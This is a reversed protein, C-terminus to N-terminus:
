GLKDSLVVFTKSGKTVLYKHSVPNEATTKVSVFHNLNIVSSSSRVAVAHIVGRDPLSHAL